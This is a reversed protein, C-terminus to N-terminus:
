KWRIQLQWWHLREAQSLGEFTEMLFGARSGQRESRDKYQLDIDELFIICPFLARCSSLLVSMNIYNLCEQYIQVVTFNRERLLKDFYSRLVFTKGVGPPGYLLIGLTPSINNGSFRTCFDEFNWLSNELVDTIDKNITHKIKEFQQCNLKDNIRVSNGGEILVHRNRYKEHFAQNFINEIESIDLTTLIDLTFVPRRANEIYVLNREDPNFYIGEPHVLKYGMGALTSKFNDFAFYHLPCTINYEKVQKDLMPSSFENICDKLM